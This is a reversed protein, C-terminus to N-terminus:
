SDAPTNVEMNRIKAAIEEVLVNYGNEKMVSAYEARKLSLDNVGNAIVSIIVWQGDKKHLLYDLKVPEEGPRQLETRVMMRGRKLEESGLTTFSEGRHGTFNAAYTAASLQRFLNVFRQRESTELDRWYRSLVVQAILDTDFHTDIVPKVLEYRGQYGLSAANM